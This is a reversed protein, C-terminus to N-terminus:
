TFNLCFHVVTLIWEVKRGVCGVALSMALLVTETLASMM